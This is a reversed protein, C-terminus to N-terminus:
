RAYVSTKDEMLGKIEVEVLKDSFDEGGAEYPICVKVYRTTHGVWFLRESIEVKEEVLVKEKKGVMRELNKETMEKAARILIASRVQKVRPEIQKEMSAAPTGNRPSFQFIHMDLFDVQRIFNLTEDFEEQTEGPFGVIADTTFSPNDFCARLKNCKDMYEESSYGRNMRKLVTDCGSQMSLHFHPCLKDAGKIKELFEDTIMQPDVSSIRIREIGDVGQLAIVVDGIDPIGTLDEKDGTAIAEKRAERKFDVGYSSMNIGTLVIEKIGEKSLKKSEALIDEITRSRIRGRAYPIICYTCFQDCGDQIKIYARTHRPLSTEDLSEYNASKSIDSIEVIPEKNELFRNICDVLMHKNNTGLCIDIPENEIVEEANAQVFCGVAVVVADPNMKKARHLMQRSKRDAINTVSCTNIVYVDAPTEKNFAVIEYGSKKLSEEMAEAEYANTKCGLNHVTAKM